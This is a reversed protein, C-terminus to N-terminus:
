FTGSSYRSTPRDMKISLSAPCVLLKRTVRTSAFDTVMSPLLGSHPRSTMKRNSINNTRSLAILRSVPTDPNVCIPKQTMADRVKQGKFLEASLRIVDIDKFVGIIKGEEEVPASQIKTSLIVSAVSDLSSNKSVTSVKKMLNSVKTDAQIRSQRTLYRQTLYGLFVERENFVLIERKKKLVKIVKSLQVDANVSEFDSLISSYEESM